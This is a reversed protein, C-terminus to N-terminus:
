AANGIGKKVVGKFRGRLPLYDPRCKAHQCSAELNRPVWHRPLHTQLATQSGGPAMKSPSNSRLLTPPNRRSNGTRHGEPPGAWNKRWNRRTLPSNPSASLPNWLTAMGFNPLSSSALESICTGHKVGAFSSALNAKTAKTRTM